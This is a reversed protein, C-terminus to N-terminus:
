SILNFLTKALVTRVLSCLLFVFRFFLCYFLSRFHRVLRLLSNFYFIFLSIYAFAAHWGGHRSPPILGCFSDKSSSRSSSSRNNDNNNDTWFISAVAASAPPPKLQFTYFYALHLCRLWFAAYVVGRWSLLLSLAVLILLLLLLLVLPLQRM